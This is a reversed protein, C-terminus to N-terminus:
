GSDSYSLIKYADFNDFSVVKKGNVIYGYKWDKMIDFLGWPSDTSYKDSM